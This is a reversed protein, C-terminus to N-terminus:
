SLGNGSGTTKHKAYVHVLFKRRYHKLQAFLRLLAYTTTPILRQRWVSYLSDVHGLHAAWINGSLGAEGFEDKFSFALDTKSRFLRHGTLVATLYLQYDESNKKHEAFRLAMDRRLVVTRTHVPNHWLVDIPRLLIPALGATLEKFPAGPMIALTDACVGHAQPSRELWGLQLEIKRPHWIDDADLFAVYEGQAHEWGVNRARGPGYNSDLHIIKLWRRGHRESLRDLLAREESPGGDNIVITEDPRRTQDWVSGIAREISTGHGFFPIITTLKM